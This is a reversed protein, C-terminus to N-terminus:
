EKTPKNLTKWVLQGEPTYDHVVAYSLPPPTIVQGNPLRMTHKICSRLRKYYSIATKPSPSYAQRTIGLAELDPTLRQTVMYQTYTPFHDINRSRKQASLPQSLKLKYKSGKLVNAYAGGWYLDIEFRLEQNTMVNEPHIHTRLVRQTSM